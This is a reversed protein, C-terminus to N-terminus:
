SKNQKFENLHQTLQETTKKIEKIRPSSQFKFTEITEKAETAIDPLLDRAVENFKSLSENLDTLSRQMEDVNQASTDLANVMNEKSQNMDSSFQQRLDKGSKPAYLLGLVGGLLSGFLVGKSFKAM